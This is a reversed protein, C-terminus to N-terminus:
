KSPPCESASNKRCNGVTDRSFAMWANSSAFSDSSACIAHLDQQVLAKGKIKPMVQRPVFHISRLLCSELAQLVSVEEPLRLIGSVLDKERHVLTDGVLLIKDLSLDRDEHDACSGILHFVKDWQNFRNLLSKALDFGAPDCEGGSQTM